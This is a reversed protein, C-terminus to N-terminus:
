SCVLIPGTKPGGAWRCTRRDIIITKQRHMWPVARGGCWRSTPTKLREMSKIKKNVQQKSSLPLFCFNGSKFNTSHVRFLVEGQARWTDGVAVSLKECVGPDTTEDTSEGKKICQLFTDFKTSRREFRFLWNPFTFPSKTIENNNWLGNISRLTCTCLAHM